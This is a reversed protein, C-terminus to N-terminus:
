RDDVDKTSPILGNARIFEAQECVARAVADAALLAARRDCGIPDVLRMAELSALLVTMMGQLPQELQLVGVVGARADNLPVRLEPWRELFEAAERECVKM